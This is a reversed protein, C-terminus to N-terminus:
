RKFYLRLMIKTKRKWNGHSLNFVSKGCERKHQINKSEEGYGETHGTNKSAKGRM